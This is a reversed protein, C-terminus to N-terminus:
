ADGRVVAEGAVNEFVKAGEVAVEGRTAKKGGRLRGHKAGGKEGGGEAAEEVEM